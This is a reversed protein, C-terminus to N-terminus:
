HLKTKNYKLKMIYWTDFVLSLNVLCEFSKTFMNIKTIKRTM